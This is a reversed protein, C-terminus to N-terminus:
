ASTPARGPRIRPLVAALDAVLEGRERTMRRNTVRLHQLRARVMTGDRARDREADKWRSHFDRSDLEVVFRHEPWFCDVKQGAVLVNTQAAPFGEEALFRQFAREIGEEASEVPLYDGLLLTMPKLGRRGPNREMCAAIAAMDLLERRDAAEVIAEFRGFSLTEALDLLTRHLATIPLADESRRLDLASLHRASHVTVGSLRM